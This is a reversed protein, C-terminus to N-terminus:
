ASAFLEGNLCPPKSVFGMTGALAGGLESPVSYLVLVLDLQPPDQAPILGPSHLCVRPSM